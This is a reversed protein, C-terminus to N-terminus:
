EVISISQSFMKYYELYFNYFLCTLAGYVVERTSRLYSLFYSRVYLLRFFPISHSFLFFHFFYRM